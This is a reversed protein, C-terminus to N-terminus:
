FKFDKADNKIERRVDPPFLKYFKRMENEAVNLGLAVHVLTEFPKTNNMKKMGYYLKKLSRKLTNSVAQRKIGLEEAIETGTMPRVINSFDREGKRTRAKRRTM